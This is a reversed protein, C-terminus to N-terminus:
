YFNTSNQVRQYYFYDKAVFLHKLSSTVLFGDTQHSLCQYRKIFPKISVHKSQCSSGSPNLSISFSRAAHWFSSGTLWESKVDAVKAMCVLQQMCAFMLLSLLRALRPGVPSSLINRSVDLTQCAELSYLISFGKCGFRSCLQGRVLPSGHWGCTLICTMYTHTLLLTVSPHFM